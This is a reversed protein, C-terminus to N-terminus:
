ALADNGAQRDMDRDPQSAAYRAQALRPEHSPETGGQALGADPVAEPDHVVRDLAIVHVQQDLRVAVMRHGAPHLADTRPDALERVTEKLAAALHEVTAIVQARQARRELYVPCQTVHQEIVAVVGRLPAFGLVHDIVKVSL